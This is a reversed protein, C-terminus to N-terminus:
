CFRLNSSVYCICSMLNKALYKLLCTGIRLGSVNWCFYKNYWSTRFSFYRKYKTDLCQKVALFSVLFCLSLFALLFISQRELLYRKMLVNRWNWWKNKLEMIYWMNRFERWKLNLLMWVSQIISLISEINGCIESDLYKDQRCSHFSLKTPKLDDMRTKFFSNCLM